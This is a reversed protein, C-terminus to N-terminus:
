RSLANDSPEYGDPQLNSGELAWWGAEEVNIESTMELRKTGAGKTPCFHELRCRAEQSKCGRHLTASERSGHAWGFIANLQAESTGGEAALTAGAKRLGHASGPVGAALIEDHTSSV